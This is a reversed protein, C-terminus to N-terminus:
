KSPKKSCKNKKCHKCYYVTRAKNSTNPLICGYSLMDRATKLNYASLVGHEQMDKELMAKAIAKHKNVLIGCKFCEIYHKKTFLDGEEPFDKSDIKRDIESGIYKRKSEPCTLVDEIESIGMWKKLIEKM